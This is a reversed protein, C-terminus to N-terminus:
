LAFSLVLGHHVRGENELIDHLLLLKERDEGLAGIHLLHKVNSEFARLETCILCTLFIAERRLSKNGAKDLLEIVTLLLGNIIITPSASVVIVDYHVLHTVLIVLLRLISIVRDDNLKKLLHNGVDLSNEVLLRELM